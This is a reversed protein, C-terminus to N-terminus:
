WNASQSLKFVTENVEGLYKEDIIDRFKSLITDISNLKGNGEIVVYETKGGGMANYMYIGTALFTVVAVIVILMIIKYIRQKREYDM